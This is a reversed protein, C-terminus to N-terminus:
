PKFQYRVALVVELEQGTGAGLPFASRLLKLSATDLLNSGSSTAVRLGRLEGKPGIRLSIRVTGETGRRRAAEPYNKHEEIYAELRSLLIEPTDVPEVPGSFATVEAKSSSEVEEEPGEAAPTTAENRESPSLSEPAPAPPTGDEPPVPRPTQVPSEPEAAPPPPKPNKPTDVRSKETDRAPITKSPRPAPPAKHLAVSVASRRPASLASPTTPLALILVLHVALSVAGAFLFPRKM